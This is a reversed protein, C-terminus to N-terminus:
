ENRLDFNCEKLPVIKTKHKWKFAFYALLSLPIFCYNTIFDFWSFTEAEFVWINAGFIIVVSLIMAFITGYPYFKSKYKLDNLDRGQAVYAKRFRYHCLAIGFWTIFGTLGSASYFITYIKGDGIISAFFSLCGISATALIAWVPVGRKDVKTFIRPASKGKGMAFLMRSAAYISSNGVSLVATLIVANMISAAATFGSNQLVLTFPSAAVNDIDASLLNPDTFPVIFGIITIAAIYFILIRWFTTKIAKPVNKEPNESEGAALGVIETGLFSFGAVLFVSLMTSFGGVFPAKGAEAGDFTWNHFGVNDNNLLGFIMLTGVIIFIIVTTVKIASFWYEAEGYVKVSFLNLGLLIFFFIMAWMTTSTDPFWFKIIFASAILEAAITIAYGFWYVWGFVFGAAPDVFRNAYEEFSGSTPIMTAMEGLSTMLFYVIVGMIAYALLAGGPGAQSIASGSAFFLGTGICGGIAIMSLHRAKLKRPLEGGQHTPSMEINKQKIAEM